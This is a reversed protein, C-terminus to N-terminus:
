ISFEKRLKGILHWIKRRGYRDSCCGTTKDSQIGIVPTVLADTVQGILLLTASLSKDFNLVVKFFLLFYTFWVAACIDNLVHGVGYAFSVYLPIYRQSSDILEDDLLLGNHM